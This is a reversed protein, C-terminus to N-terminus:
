DADAPASELAALQRSVLRDFARLQHEILTEVGDGSAVPLPPPADSLTAAVRSTEEVPATKVAATPEADAAPQRREFPYNPLAVRRRRYPLDFGRWDVEAGRLYLRALSDLLVSWPGQKQRFPFLRNGLGDGWLSPLWLRAAESSGGPVDEAALCDAGMGLLTPHPGIEVFVDIGEGALTAMGDAFRVPQRMQRRWYSASGMEEGALRGSLGSVLPIRPPSWRVASAAQEFADLIPEVLPSHLPRPVELPWSEVGEAELRELTAAVAEAAGSIAVQRPGNIAAITVGGSLAGALIEEGALVSAMRGPAELSGVLRGREAVLRLGGALDCAGAVCAAAHEGLSHGLVADPIVGWSRWLETLAFSLAFLAPQVTEQDDSTEQGCLVRRLPLELGVLEQCRDIAQRFVPQTAYLECGVAPSGAGQGTFLFAIRPRRHRQGVQVAAESRGATFAALALRAAAADAAKVTLRHELHSRGAAACFCVDAFSSTETELLRGYRGALRRLADASGASLPLLHLPREDDGPVPDESTPAPAESLVLHANTGSFGFSSVAAVREGSSAPWPVTSTTVAIPLEKWPIHPNPEEFHLSPPLEGHGLSLVMKILGAVGAAAELHGINTKVSGVQLPRDLPRGAGYVAGLARLEIPDGLVTGSGHAEVVDLLDPAVQAQQLASRIVAEQARGSPATLGNSPGDHNVATGRIWALARGDNVTSARELLVLGCGESRVYGDADAAFSKCRGGASLTGTLDLAVTMRPSSLLNVGGALAMECEGARLSQCALHVAVLSSSCATDVALSPGRLGLVYSLRGAAVSLTSGTASYPHLDQTGDASPELGHGSIGLFVGVPRESLEDAPLGANELAQWAVELLLRQRPEMAEAERPSIGFLEADFGYADNLFGGWRAEPADRGDWRGAPAETVADTGRRLLDWFARPGEAGPFRCGMGVIAIPERADAPPVDGAAPAPGVAGGLHRAVETVTPYDYLLTPPLNVDFRQALDGALEVLQRSGLGFREFAQGPDIAEAALGLQEALRGILWSEVTRSAASRGPMAAPLAPTEGAPLAPTEGAANLAVFLDITALRGRLFADRCGRRRIKGSNTKPITRPELLAVAHVPVSHEGAVAQRVAAIVEGPSARRGGEAGRGSDMEAAIAVQEEGDVEVAFAACCGPRLSPHTDTVTQEIDHPYHNQGAIIILDKLRGTIYLEGDELVALDGTRLYPGEGDELHAGFVEATEQPRNWYGRPLSPSRIWVEGVRDAACRRHTEPDVVLVEQDLWARGCGVVPQGAPDSASRRAWRGDALAERDVTAVRPPEEARGGTVFVTSEALGWCPYFAEARFGCPAFAETFREMTVARVPEAGNWAVSWSELNLGRRAEEGVKRVCLEYAFNPGGSTHPRYRSIAELWRAPRQVFALPAMLTCTGGLYLAHLVHLILGMDHALPMWCVLDSGPEHGCAVQLMHENHLLNRHSILLGKPRSTSGSTYQLFAPSGPELAPRRWGQALGRDLMDTALWELGALEPLQPLLSKSQRRLAETTFVYRAGADAAITQVRPLSRNLRSPEPPYAPVAIAGAFLCGLFAPMFDLGPSYLLLVREGTSGREQLWAGIARSRRELEAYTLEDIPGDVDGTALQRYVIRTPQARASQRLLEVLNESPMAKVM